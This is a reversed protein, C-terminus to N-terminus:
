SAETLEVRGIENLQITPPVEEISLATITTPFQIDIFQRLYARVISRSCLILPQVNLGAVQTVANAIGNVLQYAANPEIALFQYEGQEDQQIGSMIVEEVEESLAVYDLAGNRDRICMESGM